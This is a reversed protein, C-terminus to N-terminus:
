INQLERLIEAENCEIKCKYLISVQFAEWEEIQKIHCILNNVIHLYNTGFLALLNKLYNIREDLSFPRSLDFASALEVLTNNQSQDIINTM